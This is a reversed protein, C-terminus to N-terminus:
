NIIQFKKSITKTSGNGTTFKASLVYNGSAYMSCDFHHVVKGTDYSESYSFDLRRGTMDYLEVEIRGREDFQYGFWLEDTAPIPYLIFSGNVAGIDLLGNVIDNPQQFGQTLITSGATFTQVAALEGVTYSISYSGVASYAGTASIVQPSLTQARISMVSLCLCIALLPKIM